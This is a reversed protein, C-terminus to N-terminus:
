QGCGDSCSSHFHSSPVLRSESPSPPLRRCCSAHQSDTLSSLNGGDGQDRCHGMWIIAPAESTSTHRIKILGRLLKDAVDPLGEKCQPHPFGGQCSRNGHGAPGGRAQGLIERFWNFYFYLGFFGAWGGPKKM